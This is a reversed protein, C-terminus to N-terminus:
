PTAAYSTYSLEFLDELLVARHELLQFFSLSFSVDAM